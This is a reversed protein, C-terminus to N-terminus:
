PLQTFRTIMTSYTLTVSSMMKGMTSVASHFQSFDNIVAAQNM